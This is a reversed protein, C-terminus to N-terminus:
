SSSFARYEGSERSDRLEVATSLRSAFTRMFRACSSLTRCMLHGVFNRRLWTVGSGRQYRSSDLLLTASACLYKLRRFFGDVVSSWLGYLVATASFGGVRHNLCLSENFFHFTRSNSRILCTNNIRM